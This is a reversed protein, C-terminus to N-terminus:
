SRSRSCKSSRRTKHPLHRYFIISRVRERGALEQYLRHRLAYRREQNQFLMGDSAFGGCFTLISRLSGSDTNSCLQASSANAGLFWFLRKGAADWQVDHGGDLSVRAIGKTANGPKSWLPADGVNGLDTVFVNFSDVFAVKDRKVPIAVESTFRGEAITTHNYDALANPGSALDIM